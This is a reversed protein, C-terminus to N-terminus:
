SFRYFWLSLCYKFAMKIVNHLLFCCLNERIDVYQIMCSFLVKFQKGGHM